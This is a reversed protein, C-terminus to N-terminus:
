RDAALHRIGALQPDYTKTARGRRWSSAADALYVPLDTAGDVYYHLTRVGKGTEHALLDGDGGLTPVLSDEFARLADLAEDTPLGNGRDAFPLALAVHTDFRPWRAARLPVQASAVVPHGDPAQGSLLVWQPPEHHAAVTSVTTRLEDVTSPDLPAGTDATDTGVWVEVDHEGLAWDLSLFAIQTRVQEPLTVFAPHHVVVNVAHEHTTVGFRLDGLALEADAIQLRAHEFAPNPQRADHFEWTDDPPPALALWRAATARLASDGVPSLTFDHSAVSGKGLEWDLKPNIAKVRASIEDVLPMGGDGAELGATLRPRVSPWWMWFDVIPDTRRSRGFFM